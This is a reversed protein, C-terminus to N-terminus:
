RRNLKALLRLIELYLWAVTVLLGFASFWAMHGPARYAIGKEIMDFDLLLNFAALGAIAVSMLIGLPSPSSLFSVSVFFSAVFSILYMVMVGMTAAMVVSKFRETVKITGTRWLVWMVAFVASTALLAQLAIGNYRVNMAHSFGGIFMGKAVAYALGLPMAQERRFNTVIAIGIAAIVAIILWGPFVAVVGNQKALTWGFFSAIGFVGFLTAIANATNEKTMVDGTTAVGASEFAKPTLVPNAM